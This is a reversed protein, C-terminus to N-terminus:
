SILIFVTWAVALSMVALASIGFFFRMRIASQALGLLFFAIALISLVAIYSDAKNDWKHYADSAANQQLTFENAAKSLDALYTDSDPLGDPESPAYRSDTYFVSLAHGAESRAQAVESQSLLAAAAESEGADDLELATLQM